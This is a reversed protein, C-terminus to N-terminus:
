LAPNPASKAGDKRSPTRSNELHGTNHYNKGEHIRQPEDNTSQRRKSDRVAQIACEEGGFDAHKIIGTHSGGVPELIAHIIMRGIFQHQETMVKGRNRTRTRQHAWNQRRLPAVRRPENPNYDSRAERAAHM